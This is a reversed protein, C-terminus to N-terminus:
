EVGALTWRAAEPWAAELAEVRQRLDANDRELELVREAMADCLRTVLRSLMVVDARLAAEDPSPIESLRDEAHTM